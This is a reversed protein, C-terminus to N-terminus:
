RGGAARLAADVQAATPFGALTQVAERRYTDQPGLSVLAAATREGCTGVLTVIWTGSQAWGKSVAHVGPTDLREITLRMQRRAGNVIGEATGTVRAAAPDACGVPRVVFLTQKAKNAVSAGPPPLAAIPPGVQLAFEQAALLTVATVSLGAVFILGLLTPQRSM